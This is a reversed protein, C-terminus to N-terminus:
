AKFGPRELKELAKLLSEPPDSKCVFARAGAQLAAKQVQPRSSLVIVALDPKIAKLSTMAEGPRSEALEWDLIVLDSRGIKVLKILAETDRAEGVVELGAKEELLLRIASRVEIQDDAVIVRM